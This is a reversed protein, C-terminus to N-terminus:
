RITGFLFSLNGLNILCTEQAGRASRIACILRLCRQGHEFAEPFDSSLVSIALSLKGGLKGAM